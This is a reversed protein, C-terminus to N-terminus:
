EKVLQSLKQMMQNIDEFRYKIQLYTSGLDGEIVEDEILKNFSDGMLSQDVRSFFQKKKEYSGFFNSTYSNKKSLM